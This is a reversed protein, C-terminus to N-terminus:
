HVCLKNDCKSFASPCHSCSSGKTFPKRGRYNGGPGYNCFVIYGAHNWGGINNCWSVGCGVDTTGAWVVQTYHGCHEGKACSLSGYDYDTKEDWWHKVPYGSQFGHTAVYINQGIHRFGFKNDRDSTHAFKCASAASQAQKALDDNWRLKVMDSAGEGARLANHMDLMEQKQDDTISKAHNGIAPAQKDLLFGYGVTLCAAVLCVSVKM